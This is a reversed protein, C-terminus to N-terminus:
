YKLVATNRKIIELLSKEITTPHLCSGTLHSFPTVEDFSGPEVTAQPDMQKLFARIKFSSIQDFVLRTRSNKAILNDSYKVIRRSVRTLVIM